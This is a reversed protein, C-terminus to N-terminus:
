DKEMKRFLWDLFERRKDPEIFRISVVVDWDQGSAREDCRLVEGTMSVDENKGVDDMRLKLQLLTGQPCSDFSRFSVGGLSIDKCQVYGTRSPDLTGNDKQISYSIINVCPARDFNRKEEPM